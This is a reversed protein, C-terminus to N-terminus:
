VEGYLTSQLFATIEPDKYYELSRMMKENVRIGNKVLLQISELDNTSILFHMVGVGSIDGNQDMINNEILFKIIRDKKNYSYEKITLRFYFPGFMDRALKLLELQDTSLCAIVVNAPLLPGKRKLINLLLTFREVDLVSSFIVIPSMAYDYGGVYNCLETFKEDDFGRVMDSSLQYLNESLDELKTKSLYNILTSEFTTFGEIINSHELIAKVEEVTLTDFLANACEIVNM